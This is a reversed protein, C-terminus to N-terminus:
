VRVGLGRVGLVRFGLDQVRFGSGRFGLRRFGSSGAEIAPEPEKYAESLLSVHLLRWPAHKGM